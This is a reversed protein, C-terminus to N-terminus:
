GLKQSIFRATSKIFAITVTISLAPLFLAQLLLYSLMRMPNFLMVDADFLGSLTINRVVGPFYMPGAPDNLKGVVSLGRDGALMGRVVHDHIVYTYPYIIGFGLSAAILFAGADRTPPFIRLVIGAPLVFPLVAGRIVELIAMQVLLSATFPSILLLLFDVVREIVVFSPFGPLITGWVSAGWRMTWAGWYQSWLKLGEFSIVAPLAVSGSIFNLYDRSVEFTDRPPGGPNAFEDARVSAWCSLYVGGFIFAFLLVSVALQHMEVSAFSEYEPKRFLAAAMWFLAILVVMFALSVAVITGITDQVFSAPDACYPVLLYM